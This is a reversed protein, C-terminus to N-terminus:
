VILEEINTKRSLEGRAFGFLASARDLEDHAKWGETEMSAKLSTQLEQVSLSSPKSASQLFAQDYLKWWMKYHAQLESVERELRDAEATLDEISLTKFEEIQQAYEEQYKAVRGRPTRRNLGTSESSQPPPGVRASVPRPSVPASSGALLDRNVKIPPVTRKRTGDETSAVAEELYRHLQSQTALDKWAAALKVANQEPDQVQTTDESALAVYARRKEELAAAAVQCEQRLKPLTLAAISLAQTENVSSVLSALAADLKQLSPPKELGSSQGRGVPMSKIRSKKRKDAPKTGSQVPPELKWTEGKAGLRMSNMKKSLASEKEKVTRPADGKIRSTRVKSRSSSAM